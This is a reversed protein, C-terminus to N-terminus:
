PTVVRPPAKDGSSLGTIEFRLSVRKDVYYYTGGGVSSSAVIEEYVMRL